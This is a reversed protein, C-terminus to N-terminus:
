QKEWSKPDSPDGGLFRYGDEIVGPTPTSSPTDSAGAWVNPADAVGPDIGGLEAQKRYHDVTAKRAPNFVTKQMDNVFQSVMKKDDASYKGSFVRNLANLNREYINGFSKNQGYFMAVARGKTMYEALLKQLQQTSAPSTSAIAGRIEQSQRDLEDIPAMAKIAQARFQNINGATPSKSSGMKGIREEGQALRREGQGLAQEGRWAAEERSRILSDTNLDARDERRGELRARYVKNAADSAEKQLQLQALQDKSQQDFFAKHSDAYDMWLHSPVGAKQLRQFYEPLSLAPTIAAAAPPGGMGQPPIQPPQPGGMGQPPGGMGQPPGAMGQPPGAMGQPPGAMGQPPGKTSQYPPIPVSPQGPEPPQPLLAENSVGQYGQMEQMRALAARQQALAARQQEQGALFQKYGLYTPGGYRDTLFDEAM